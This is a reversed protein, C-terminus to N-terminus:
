VDIGQAFKEQLKLIQYAKETLNDGDVISYGALTYGETVVTEGDMVPEIVEDEVKAPCSYAETQLPAFNSKRANQDVYSYVEFKFQNTLTNLSANLVKHYTADVAYRTPINIQIAM